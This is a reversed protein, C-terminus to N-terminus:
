TMQRESQTPGRPCTVHRQGRPCTVHHQLPYILPRIVMPLATRTDMQCASNHCIRAYVLAGVYKRIIRVQQQIMTNPFVYLRRKQNVLLDKAQRYLAIKISPCLRSQDVNQNLTHPLSSYPLVFRLIKWLRQNAYVKVDPGLVSSM